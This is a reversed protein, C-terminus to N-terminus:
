KAPNLGKIGCLVVISIDNEAAKYTIESIEKEPNPNEVIYSTVLVEEGHATKGEFVPDSFWTGIYGTHRHVDDYLPDAYRRDYHQVGGAYEARAVFETGDTYKVTYEGSLRLNVWPIRQEVELTTHEIALRDYKGGVKVTAGDAIIAKPYAEKLEAPIGCKCGEPLEFATAEYGTKSYKGRILDRQLPQINKSIVHSFVTRMDDDYNEPNWLMEATYTLDWFKGKKGMRYENVECWSSVQGGKMQPHAMRKRYRGYHSSYLNGAIVDFGEPFLNEEIDLARHFYWIFDLCLIDKPIMKIAGPTQYKTVPQIMDSWMMTKYGLEKLHNYIRNVDRAFLVDHPTGKCKKCAGLYYVEDHGIHVYRDPKAVEIIEDMIDFLLEYSKENSPCYCHHYKLTPRADEDHKNELQEVADEDIEAIEPHSITYWQVHGLSQVEPVVEFGLEHAYDLLEMVTKKPISKGECGMYRHAFPKGIADCKENEILWAETLEPHKEFEMASIIQVIVMNYGLPLLIEKFFKKTFSVNEVKPLGMHYGRYELSPETYVDSLRFGGNEYLSIFAYVGYLLSLRKAATIVVGDEKVSVSYGEKAYKEDDSIVLKVEVGKKDYINGFREDILEELFGKAYDADKGGASVVKSIKVTGCQYTAKKPVPWILPKEDDYSVSIMPTHLGFKFGGKMDVRVTLFKTVTGVHATINGTITKGTEAAYKGVVKGDVFVRVRTCKSGPTTPLTVAGVYCERELECRIELSEEYFSGFKWEISGDENQIPDIALPKGGVRTYQFKVNQAYGIYM